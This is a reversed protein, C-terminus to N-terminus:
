PTILISGTNGPWAEIIMPKTITIPYNGIGSYTAPVVYLRAGTAYKGIIAVGEGITNFPDASFGTETGTATQNVYIYRPRWNAVTDRTNNHSRRNDASNSGTYIIGMPGRNVGASDIFDINPNSWYNVRTCGGDPCDYAMITRFSREPDLYGHSYSFAGDSNTENRDHEAGQNHGMEHAFSYYGTACDYWVVSFGKNEFSHSEDRMVWALGCWASDDIFLSVMDAGYDNRLTHVHDMKGDTKGTIDDLAVDFADDDGVSTETYSVEERHVLNIRQSLGSNAYGQNTETVALDVLTEMSVTGGVASRAAQTYVILVDLTTGSEDGSSTGDGSPQSTPEDAGVAPATSQDLSSEIVNEERERPDKEPPFARQDIKRIAHRNNGLYRIQFIGGEPLTINGSIVQGNSVLIVQSGDIGEFHGVMSVTSGDPSEDRVEDIVLVYSKGDFLELEMRTVPIDIKGIAPVDKGPEGPRTKSKSPQPLLSFNVGMQKERSVTAPLAPRDGKTMASEIQTLLSPLEEALIFTAYGFTLLGVSILSCIVHRLRM